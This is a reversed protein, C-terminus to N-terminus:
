QLRQQPVHAQRVQTVELLCAGAQGHGVHLLGKHVTYASFDSLLGWADYLM